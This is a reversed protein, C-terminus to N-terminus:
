FNARVAEDLSKKDMILISGAAPDAADTVAPTFNTLDKTTLMRAFNALRIMKLLPLDTQIFRMAITLAVPAKILNQPKTFSHFLVDMFQQQRGIRGLDGRADHRFRIFGELQKGSLRQRGKKLNIFLGQARDNYFMDNDVEVDVGGVLDVLKVAAFTNIKIYHDIERGILKEVTKKILPTGGYVNAANIKQYGYGDIPVFTDRPISLIFMKYSIPDLRMVMISDTRGGTEMIPEGTEKNFSIDTGLVLINTPRRTMGIRLFHPILRPAFLNAYFYTIGVVIYLLALLRLWDPHRRTM